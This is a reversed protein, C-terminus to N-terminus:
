NGLGGKALGGDESRPNVIKAMALAGGAEHATSISRESFLASRQTPPSGDRTPFAKTAVSKGLVWAASEFIANSTSYEQRCTCRVSIIATSILFPSAACTHRVSTTCM